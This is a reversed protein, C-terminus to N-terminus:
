MRQIMKQFMKELVDSDENKGGSKYNKKITDIRITDKGELGYFLVDVTERATDVVVIGLLMLRDMMGDAERFFKKLSKSLGSELEDKTIILTATPLIDKKTGKSGFLDFLGNIRRDNRKEALQRFWPHRRYKAYMDADSSARNVQLILDKILSIEGSLLRVLVTVPKSEAISRFIGTAESSTIIHPITKFAIPIVVKKGHIMLPIKLTTPETRKSDKSFSITSPSLDGSDNNGRGRNGKASVNTNDQNNNPKRKGSDGSYKKAESGFIDYEQTAGEIARTAAARFVPDNNFTIGIDEAESSYFSSLHDSVRNPDDAVQDIGMAISTFIAYQVELYKLISEALKPDDDVIGESIIAPYTMIGKKAKKTISDMKGFIKDSNVTGVTDKIDSILDGIDQIMGM